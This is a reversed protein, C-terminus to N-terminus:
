VTALGERVKVAVGRGFALMEERNMLSRGVAVLEDGEDVVLVEDWPRVADDCDVVFKAFVNKGERNFPATDGNVTVRLRPAEFAAHLRLGGPLKLTYLGDRARLSLVHGGDVLVNRVKATRKSKVFEVEGTLLADAARPGFQHDAVARARALDMDIAASGPAKAALEELSGKGEWLLGFAFHGKRLFAQLFAESAELTEVDLERPVVSQGIPFVGDLEVPVPGFASKVVAHANASRFLRRLLSGYTRAYPRPAEPLILLGEAEPPRYRELVRYRFRWTAPRWITEPGTYFLHRGTGKEFRELFEVHGRLAKLAELLRPHVRCREEVHEWLRDEHIAQRVERMERLSVHLNHAALRQADERLDEPTAGHCAPCDCALTRLDEVHTTGRATIMRGDQAYKAYSASDFLDCGLLVALGFILPHGGGFLHVPRDPRLGKRSAVIVEVLDRFRYREMLPVVGGIAHVALPLESLGEASERRLDPFLGGQVTGMLGMEGRWTAAEECRTLTTKVAEACAERGDEPESFVDLVTGLDSGIAAQYRVIEENSVDVRGYVHQQFAGSDTVVPGPFDLLKHVGEEVARDRLEGRRLIYANTMLIEVGFDERLRRPPITLRSPNVVPMLAPTEVAGHPTELRGIRGLGARERMEFM